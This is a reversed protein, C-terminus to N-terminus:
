TDGSQPRLVRVISSVTAFSPAITSPVRRTRLSSPAYTRGGWRKDDDDLPVPDDAGRALVDEGVDRVGFVQGPVAPREPQRGVELLAAAAVREDREAPIERPQRDLRHDARYRARRVAHVDHLYPSRQTPERLAERDFRAILGRQQPAPDFRVRADRHQGVFGDLM